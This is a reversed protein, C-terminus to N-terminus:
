PMLSNTLILVTKTCYAAARRQGELPALAEERVARIPM